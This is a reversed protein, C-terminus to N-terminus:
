DQSGQHYRLHRTPTQILSIHTNPPLKSTTTTHSRQRPLRPRQPRDQLQLFPPRPQHLPRAHRPPPLAAATGRHGVLFPRRETGRLQYPYRLIHATTTTLPLWRRTAMRSQRQPQRPRPRIRRHHPRAATRGLARMHHRPKCQWTVGEHIATGATGTSRQPDRLPNGTALLLTQQTKPASTKSCPNPHNRRLHTRRHRLQRLPLQRQQTGVEATPHHVRSAHRLPPAHPSRFPRLKKTPQPPPLPASVVTRRGQTTSTEPQPLDAPNNPLRGPEVTARQGDPNTIIWNTYVKVTPYCCTGQKPQPHSQPNNPTPLIKPSYLSYEM